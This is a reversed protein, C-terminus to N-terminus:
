DLRFLRRSPRLVPQVQLFQQISALWGAPRLVFTLFPLSRQEWSFTHNAFDFQIRKISLSFVGVFGDINLEATPDTGLLVAPLSKWEAPGLSVEKLDGERASVGHFGHDISREGGSSKTSSNRFM